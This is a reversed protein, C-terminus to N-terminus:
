FTLSFQKTLLQQDYMKLNHQQQILLTHKRGHGIFAYHFKNSIIRLFLRDICSVDELADVDEFTGFWAQISTQSHQFNWLSWSCLDNSILKNLDVPADVDMLPVNLIKHQAIVIIQVCLNHHVKLVLFWFFFFVFYHICRFCEFICVTLM